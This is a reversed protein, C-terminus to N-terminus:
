SRGTSTPSPAPSPTAPADAAPARRRRGVAVASLLVIAAGVAQPWQLTEHLFVVGLVVAVVPIIYTVTAGVTAGVAQVVDWQLAYALGTGVVGLCLVAVLPWPGTADATLSWPARLGGAGSGRHLLWWGLAVVTMQAAALLLQAAVLGRGDGDDSPVFRRV